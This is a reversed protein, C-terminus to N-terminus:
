RGQRKWQLTEGLDGWDEAEVPRANPSTAEGPFSMDSIGITDHAGSVVIILTVETLNYFPEPEWGFVKNLKVILCPQSKNVKVLLWQYCNPDIIVLSAPVCNPPQSGRQMVKQSLSSLDSIMSISATQVSVFYFFHCQNSNKLLNGLDSWSDGPWPVHWLVRSQHLAHRLLLRNGEKWFSWM